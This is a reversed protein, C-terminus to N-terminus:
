KGAKIRLEMGNYIISSLTVEEGDSLTIGLESGVNTIQYVEGDKLLPGRAKVITLYIPKNDSSTIM